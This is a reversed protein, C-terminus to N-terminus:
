PSGKVVGVGFTKTATEAAAVACFNFFFMNLFSIELHNKVYKLKKRPSGQAL